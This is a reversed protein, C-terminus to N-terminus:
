KSKPVNEWFGQDIQIGYESDQDHAGDLNFDRLLADSAFSDQSAPNLLGEPHENNFKRCKAATKKVYYFTWYISKRLGYDKLLMNHIKRYSKGDAHLAWAAKEQKSEFEFHTLFNRAMAYYLQKGPILKRGQSSPLKIHRSDPNDAWEIDSFGTQQAKAYWEKQLKIFARSGVKPALPDPKVLNNAQWLAEKARRLKQSARRRRKTLSSESKKTKKNTM